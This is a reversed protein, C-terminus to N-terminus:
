RKGRQIYLVGYPLGSHSSYAGQLRLVYTTHITDRQALRAEHLHHLVASSCRFSDPTNAKGVRGGVEEGGGNRVARSHMEQYIRLGSNSYWHQNRTCTELSRIRELQRSVRTLLNVRHPPRVNRPSMGRSQGHVRDRVMRELAGPLYSPLEKMPKAHVNVGKRVSHMNM